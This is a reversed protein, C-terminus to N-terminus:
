LVSRTHIWRPRRTRRKENEAPFITDSAHHLFLLNMLDEDDSTNCGQEESDSMISFMYDRGSFVRSNKSGLLQQLSEGLHLKVYMPFQGYRGLLPVLFKFPSPIMHNWIIGIFGFIKTLIDICM